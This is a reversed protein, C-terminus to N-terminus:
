TARRRAMCAALHDPLTRTDIPKTIYSDCGAALATAEDGKMASATVAVVVLEQFRPQARLQRVLTLGDMGPLRLDVIVLQPLYSALLALAEEASAATRIAYDHESLLVTLLKLNLPADDVILADIM